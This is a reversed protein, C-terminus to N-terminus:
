KSMGCENTHTTKCAVRLPVTPSAKLEEAFAVIQTYILIYYLCFFHFDFFYVM